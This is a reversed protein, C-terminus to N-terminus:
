HSECINIAYVFQLPPTFRKKKRQGNFKTVKFRIIHEQKMLCAPLPMSIISDITRSCDTLNHIMMVDVKIVVLAKVSYCQSLNAMVRNVGM